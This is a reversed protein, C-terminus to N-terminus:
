CFKSHKRTVKILTRHETVGPPLSYVLRLLSVSYRKSIFNGAILQRGGHARGGDVGFPLGPPGLLSPGSM